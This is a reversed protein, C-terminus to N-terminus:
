TQYQKSSTWENLYNKDRLINRILEKRQKVRQKM